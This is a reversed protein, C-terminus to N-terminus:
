WVACAFTQFEDLFRWSFKKSNLPIRGGKRANRFFPWDSSESVRLGVLDRSTYSFNDYVWFELISGELLYWPGLPGYNGLNETKRYFSLDPWSSFTEVFVLCSIFALQKKASKEICQQSFFILIDFDRYPARIQRNLSMRHFRDFILSVCNESFM